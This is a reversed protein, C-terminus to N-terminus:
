RQSLGEIIEDFIKSDKLINPTPLIKQFKQTIGFTNTYSGKKECWITTPIVLDVKSSIKSEYASQFILFESKFNDLTIRSFPDIIWFLNANIEDIMKENLPPIHEMVGRTNCEEFVPIFDIGKSESLRLISETENAFKKNFIILSDRILEGKLIEIINDAKYHRTSNITTRTIKTDIAIIDAGKDKAKLIRRGLLPNENIIDGLIFIKEYKEINKINIQPYNARPFNSYLALKIKLKRAFKSLRQAEENTIAGSTIIYIPTRSSIEEIIREIAEKWTIKKFGKSTKLQPHKLRHKTLKYAERGNKCVKGENIPHRRYPHTGVARGAM